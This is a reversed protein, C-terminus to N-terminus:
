PWLGTVGTGSTWDELPPARAALALFFCPLVGGPLAWGTWGGLAELRARTHPQEQLLPNGRWADGTQRTGAGSKRARLRGAPLCPARPIRTRGGTVVSRQPLGQPRHGPTGTPGWSQVQAGM